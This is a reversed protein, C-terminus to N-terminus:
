SGPKRLLVLEYLNLIRCAELLGVLRESLRSLGRAIPPAVTIRRRRVLAWDPFYSMVRKLPMGTAARNLPNWVFDYWLLHGHPRTVRRMESAIARRLSEEPVSSFLMSQHILDFGADPWGLADAGGCRLDAGPLTRRLAVLRDVLLDIGCLEAQGQGWTDRCRLLFDAEGCGIDLVRRAGLPLLGNDRLLRDYAAMTRRRIAEDARRRAESFTRRRDDRQHYQDRICDLVRERGSPADTM